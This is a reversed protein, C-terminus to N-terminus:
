SSKGKVRCLDTLAEMDFTRVYWRGNPGAVAYFNASRTLPGRKLQASFVRENNPAPADSVIEHTDHNLYCLMVLERKEMEERPINGTDRVSGEASGWVTGLAQLDQNKGADLFALVAARASSAGTSSGPPAVAPQAATNVAAPSSACGVTLTAISALAIAILKRVAINETQLHPLARPARSNLYAERPAPARAVRVRNELSEVM